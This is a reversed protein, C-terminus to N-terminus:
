NEGRSRPHATDNACGKRLTGTKGAHAPILRCNEVCEREIAQKGRTLPSSGGLVRAREDALPNEGRSRPHAWPRTESPWYAGTKGAHAPILRRLTARWGRCARKGRTLPSSGMGKIGNIFGQINEGRSRPHARPRARTSRTNTTKGAHAPILGSKPAHLMMSSRKGRTLPSSGGM